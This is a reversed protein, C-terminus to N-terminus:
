AAGRSANRESKVPAGAPRAMDDWRRPLTRGRRRMTESFVERVTAAELLTREDPALGSREFGLEDLLDGGTAEFQRVEEASLESRWNRLGPTVPLRKRSGASRATAPRANHSREHFHLMAPEYPVDLFACLAACEQAPDEVLAEYRLEYYRGPGLAAGSERAVLVNRTWWLGAWLAPHEGWASQRRGDRRRDMERRSVYVDRGDRIVHVFRADPWLRHLLDICRAYRPTKDGVLRKGRAQGYLDFLSSVFTAYDIPRDTAILRQVQEASIGLYPFRKHEVLAAVVEPGVLGAETVGRGHEVLEPIWRTEHTMAIQPHADLLREMLTTGSRQCGVVFVYPNPSHTDM